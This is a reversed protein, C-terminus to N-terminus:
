IWCDSQKSEYLQAGDLSLMLVLDDELITGNDVLRLYEEAFFVDEAVEVMKQANAMELLREMARERYRM